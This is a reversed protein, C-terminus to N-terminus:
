SKCPSDPSSDIEIQLLSNAGFYVGSYSSFSWLLVMNEFHKTKQSLKGVNSFYIDLINKNKVKMRTQKNVKTAKINKYLCLISFYHKGVCKTHM